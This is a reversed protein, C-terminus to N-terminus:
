GHRRMGECDLQRGRNGQTISGGQHPQVGPERSRCRHCHRWLSTPTAWRVRSAMCSRITRPSARTGSTSASSLSTQRSAGTPQRHQRGQSSQRPSGKRTQADTSTQDPWPSNPISSRDRSRSSIMRKTWTSRHHPPRAPRKRRRPMRPHLTPM